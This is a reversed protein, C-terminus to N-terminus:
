AIVSKACSTARRRWSKLISLPASAISTWRAMPDALDSFRGEGVQAVQQEIGAIERRLARARGAKPEIQPLEAAEQCGAASVLAVLEARAAAIDGDIAAVEREAIALREILDDRRAQRREHEALRAHLAALAPEADLGALESALEQCLCGVREDFDWQDADIGDIRRELDAIRQVHGLGDEVARVVDQAADPTARVPLGAEARRQPWAAEWVSLGM